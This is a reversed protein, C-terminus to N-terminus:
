RPTPRPGPTPSSTPTSPGSCPRSGTHNESAIMELGNQQRAQEADIRAAVEPDLEAIDQDLTPTLANSRTSM